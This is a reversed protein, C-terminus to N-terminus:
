MAAVQDIIISNFENFYLEVSPPSSALHGDLTRKAWVKNDNGNVM